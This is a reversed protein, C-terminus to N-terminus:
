SLKVLIRHCVCPPSHPPLVSAPGLPLLPAQNGARGFLWHSVELVDRVAKRSLKQVQLKLFLFSPLLVTETELAKPAMKQDTM